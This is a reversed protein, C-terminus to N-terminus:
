SAKRWFDVTSKPISYKAAVQLLARLLLAAYETLGFWRLSQLIRTIRLYNHGGSGGKVLYTQFRQPNQIKYGSVTKEDLSLGYFDLMLSLNQLMRRTWLPDLKLILDKEEATPVLDRNAMGVTPLPFLIQIFDHKSELTDYSWGGAASSLEQNRRILRTVKNEERPPLSREVRFVRREGQHDVETFQDQAEPYADADIVTTKPHCKAIELYREKWDDQSRDILAIHHYGRERLLSVWRQHPNPTVLIAQM